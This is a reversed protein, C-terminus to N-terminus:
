PLKALALALTGAHQTRLLRLGLNNSAHRSQLPLVRAVFLHYMSHLLLLVHHIAHVLSSGTVQCDKFPIQLCVLMNRTLQGRGTDINM